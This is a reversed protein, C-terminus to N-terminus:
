LILEWNNILWLVIMHLPYYVYFLYKLSPGKKGNYLLLIPISLCGAFQIFNIYFSQFGGYSYAEIYASVLVFIYVALPYFIRKAISNEGHYFAIILLIGIYSWDSDIIISIFVAAIYVLPRFGDSKLKDNLIDSVWLACFGVFLTFIVNVENSLLLRYPIESILAFCLLRLAYKGKNRTKRYGEGIFFCMIPMTMRGVTRLIINYPFFTDGLPFFVAGIHDFTMAIIAVLKLVFANM